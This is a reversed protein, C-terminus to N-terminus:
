VKQPMYIIVFLLFCLFRGDYRNIEYRQGQWDYQYNRTIPRKLTHRYGHIPTLAVHQRLINQHEPFM